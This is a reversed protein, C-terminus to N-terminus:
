SYIKRYMQHFSICATILPSIPVGHHPPSCQPRSLLTSARRGPSHAPRTLPGAPHTLRGPSRTPLTLSGAPHALLCTLSYAPHSPSAPRERRAPRAIRSGPAHWEPARRATPAAHSCLMTRQEFNTRDCRVSTWFLSEPDHNPFIAESARRSQSSPHSLAGVHSLRDRPASRNPALLFTVVVSTSDPRTLPLTNLWM